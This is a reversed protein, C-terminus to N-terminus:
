ANEPRTPYREFGGSSGGGGAGGSGGSFGEGASKIAETTGGSATDFGKEMAATGLNAFSSLPVLATVIIPGAILLVTYVVSMGGTALIRGSHFNAPNTAGSSDMFLGASTTMLWTCMANYINWLALVVIANLWTALMKTGWRPVVGLPVLIPGFAFLAMTLIIWLAWIVGMSILFVVGACAVMLAGIAQPAGGVAMSVAMGLYGSFLSWSNQDTGIREDSKARIAAAWDEREQQTSIEDGAAVSFRIIRSFIQNYSVFVFITLVLSLLVEQPPVKIKFLNQFYYVFLGAVFAVILEVKGVYFMKEQMRIVAEYNPATSGGLLQFYWDPFGM